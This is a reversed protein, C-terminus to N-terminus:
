KKKKKCFTIIGIATLFFILGALPFFRTIALGVLVLVLYGSSFFSNDEPQKQEENM